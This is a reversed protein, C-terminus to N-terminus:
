RCAASAQSGAHIVAHGIFWHERQVRQSERSVVVVVQQEALQIGCRKRTQTMVFKKDIENLKQEGM